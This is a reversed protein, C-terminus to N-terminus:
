VEVVKVATGKPVTVTITVPEPVPEPWYTDLWVDKVSEIIGTNLDTPPNVGDVKGQDTYQWLWYTGWGPPLVANPGYQALWLPYNDGNIAAHPKGKLMDKLVHGSYLVVQKGTNENVSVLWEEVESLSVTADEYDLAILINAPNYRRYVSMFNDVQGGINGHRIFHYLGFLLGAQDALSYRAEVKPDQYSTGETAKHIIGIIGASAAPILSEPITNHHSLDLVIPSVM